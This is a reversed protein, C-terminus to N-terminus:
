AQDKANLNEEEKHHPDECIGLYTCNENWCSADMCGTYIMGTICSAGPPLGKCFNTKTTISLSVRRDDPM